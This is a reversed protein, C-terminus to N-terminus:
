PLRSVDLYQWPSSTGPWLGDTSPSTTSLRVSDAERLSQWIYDVLAIPALASVTCTVLRTLAWIGTVWVLLQTSCRSGGVIRATIIASLGGPIYIVAVGGVWPVWNM